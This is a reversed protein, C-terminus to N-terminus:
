KSRECAAIFGRVMRESKRKREGGKGGDMGTGNRGDGIIRSEMNESGHNDRKEEREQNEEGNGVEGM